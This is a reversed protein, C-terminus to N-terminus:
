GGGPPEREGDTAGVTMHHDHADPVGRGPGGSGVWDTRIEDDQAGSAHCEEEIRGSWTAGDAGTVGWERVCGGRM